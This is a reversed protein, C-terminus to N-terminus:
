GDFRHGARRLTDTARQVDTARVLLYDTDYTSIPFISIGARALPEALSALVGTLDFSITAAVRFARWGSEHQVGEPIHEQPCVISLEDPSSRRM